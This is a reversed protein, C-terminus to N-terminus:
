EEGYTVLKRYTFEAIVASIISYLVTFDILYFGISCVWFTLCLVCNFPKYNFYRGVIEMYPEFVFLGAGLLGSAIITLIENM